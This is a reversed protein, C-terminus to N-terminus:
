ALAPLGLVLDAAAERGGAARMLGGFHEARERFSPDDLVRILKGAVEDPDATRPPDLTLSLGLDQGRVAQDYNDVWLPRVVM